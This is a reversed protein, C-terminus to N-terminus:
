EGGEMGEPKKLINKSFLDGQERIARRTEIKQDVRKNIEAELAAASEKRKQLELKDNLSQLEAQKARLFDHKEALDLSDWNSPFTIEDEEEWIPTKGELSLGNSFRYVLEAVSLSQDPITMSPSQGPKVEDDNRHQERNFHTKFPSGNMVAVPMIDQALIKETQKM